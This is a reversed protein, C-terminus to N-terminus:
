QTGRATDLALAWDEWAKAKDIPNRLLYAPHYSVVLPIDPLGVGSPAGPPRWRHVRGRLRGIPEDSGLLQQAAFRGLALVLRPQVLEVQRMLVPACAALEDPQPNRNQPPRCKVTNTIFVQRAPDGPKAEADEAGAPAGEPGPHRSLGVAALMRDLLQGAPGVFPEGQRDEQEGPAEGVIMWQARPHGVGFVTRRRTRCLGCRECASVVTQLEGWGLGTAWDDTATQLVPAAAPTSVRSADGPARDPMKLGAPAAARSPPNASAVPRSEPAGADGPGDTRDMAEGSAPPAESSLPAPWSIGMEALMARERETWKM